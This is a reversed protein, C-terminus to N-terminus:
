LYKRFVKELVEVYEQKSHDTKDCIMNITSNILSYCLDMLESCLQRTVEFDSYSEKGDHNFKSDENDNKFKNLASEYDSLEDGMWGFTTDEIDRPKLKVSGQKLKITDTDRLWGAIEEIWHHTDDPRIQSFLMIKIVHQMIKLSYFGARDLAQKKPTAMARIYRKM